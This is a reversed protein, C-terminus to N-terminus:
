IRPVYVRVDLALSETLDRAFRYTEEFLYGTDILIVPVGPAHQSLLHLMVASHAGFSSSLALRGGYRSAAWRLIQEASASALQLNAGELEDSSATAPHPSSM